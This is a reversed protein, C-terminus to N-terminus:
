HSAWDKMDQYIWDLAQWFTDFCRLVIHPENWEGAILVLRACGESYLWGLTELDRARNFAVPLFQLNRHAAISSLLSAQAAADIFRWPGMQEVGCEIFQFYADDYNFWDPREGRPLVM